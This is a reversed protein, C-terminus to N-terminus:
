RLHLTAIALKKAKKIDGKRLCEVIEPRNMVERLIKKREAQNKVKGRLKERLYEQLEILLLDESAVAKKIRQKILKTVAPSKGKTSVSILADGLKLTAPIIFDSAKDARNVLKGSKKCEKEIADNLDKDSTAALVMDSTKIFKGINKENLEQNILELGVSKLKLLSPTFDRSVVKVKAGADLLKAVRREAVRGGGFVTVSKNLLNLVVPFM